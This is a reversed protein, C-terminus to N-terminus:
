DVLAELEREQEVSRQLIMTIHKMPMADPALGREYKWQASPHLHGPLPTLESDDPSGTVRDPVRASASPDDLTQAFSALSLTVALLFIVLALSRVLRCRM